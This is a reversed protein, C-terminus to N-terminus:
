LRRRRWKWKEEQGPKVVKVPELGAMVAVYKREDEKTGLEVMFKDLEKWDEKRFRLRRRLIKICGKGWKVDRAQKQDGHIRLQAIPM